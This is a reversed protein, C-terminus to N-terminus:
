IQTQKKEDNGRLLTEVINDHTRKALEVAWPAPPPLISCEEDIALELLQRALTYVGLDMEAAKAKLKEYSDVDLRVSIQRTEDRRLM